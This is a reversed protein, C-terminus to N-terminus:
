WCCNWIYVLEKSSYEHASFVRLNLSFCSTLRDPKKGVLPGYPWRNFCTNQPKRKGHRQRSQQTKLHRLRHSVGAGLKEHKHM